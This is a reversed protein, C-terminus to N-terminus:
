RGYSPSILWLDLEGSRIRGSLRNRHQRQEETMGPLMRAVLADSEAEPFRSSIDLIINQEALRESHMHEVEVFAIEVASQDPQECVLTIRQPQFGIAIIRADHLQPEFLDGDDTLRVPKFV